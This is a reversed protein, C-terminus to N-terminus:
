VQDSANRRGFIVGANPHLALEDDLRALDSQLNPRSNSHIACHITNTLVGEDLVLADNARVDVRRFHPKLSLVRAEVAVEVPGAREPLRFTILIRFITKLM